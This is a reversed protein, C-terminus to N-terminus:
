YYLNIVITKLNKIQEPLSFAASFLGLGVSDLQQSGDSCEIVNKIFIVLKKQFFFIELRFKNTTLNYLNTEMGSSEM